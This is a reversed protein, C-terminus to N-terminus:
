NKRGERGVRTTTATLPPPLPPTMPTASVRFTYPTFFNKFIDLMYLFTVAFNIGYV